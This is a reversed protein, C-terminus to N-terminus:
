PRMNFRRSILKTLSTDDHSSRAAMDGTPKRPHLWGGQPAQPGTLFLTGWILTEQPRPAGLVTM